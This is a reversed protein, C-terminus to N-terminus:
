LKAPVAAAVNPVTIGSACPLTTISKSCMLLVTKGSVRYTTLPAPSLLKEPAPTRSLAPSWDYRGVRHPPAIGTHRQPSKSAAEASRAPWIQNAPSYALTRVVALRPRLQAVQIPAM